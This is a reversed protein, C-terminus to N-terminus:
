NFEVQRISYSHKTEFGLTKFPFSPALLCVNGFPLLDEFWSVQPLRVSIKRFQFTQRTTPLGFEFLKLHFSFM